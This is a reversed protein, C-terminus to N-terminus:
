EGKPTNRSEFELIKEKKEVLYKKDNEDTEKGILIEIRASIFQKLLELHRLEKELFEVYENSYINKLHDLLEKNNFIKRLEVVKRTIDSFEIIISTNFSM